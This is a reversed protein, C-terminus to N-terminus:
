PVLKNPWRCDHQINIHCQQTGAIHRHSTQETQIVLMKVDLEIKNICFLPSCFTPATCTCVLAYGFLGPVSHRSSLVDSENIGLILHHLKTHWTRLWVRARSYGSHSSRTYVSVSHTLVFLKSQRPLAVVSHMCHPGQPSSRTDACFMYVAAKVAPWRESRGFASVVFHRGM